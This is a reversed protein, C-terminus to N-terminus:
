LIPLDDNDLSPPEPTNEASATIVEEDSFKVIKLEAAEYFKKM